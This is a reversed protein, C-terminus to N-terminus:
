FQWISLSLFSRGPPFLFVSDKLVPAMKQSTKWSFCFNLFSDKNGFTSIWTALLYIFFHKIKHIMLPTCILTM